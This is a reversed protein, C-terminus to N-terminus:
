FRYRLTYDMCMPAGGHSKIEIRFVGSNDLLAGSGVLEFTYALTTPDEGFPICCEFVGSGEPPCSIYGGVFGTLEHFLCLEGSFGGPHVYEIEPEFRGFLTDEVYVEYRDIDQDLFGGSDDALTLVDVSGTLTSFEDVGDDTPDLTTAVTGGLDGDDCRILGLPVPELVCETVSGTCPCATGKERKIM